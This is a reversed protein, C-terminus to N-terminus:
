CFKSNLRKKLSFSLTKNFKKIPFTLKLTSISGLSL